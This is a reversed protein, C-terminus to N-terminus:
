AKLKKKLYMSVREKMLRSVRFGIVRRASIKYPEMTKPNRGMREKKSRIFFVGFFPIKVEKGEQLANSIEEFVSDVIKSSETKTLQVKSMLAYAIDIRTVNRDSM